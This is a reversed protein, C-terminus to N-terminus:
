RPWAASAARSMPMIPAPKKWRSGSMNAGARFARCTISNTACPSERVLLRVRLVASLSLDYKDDNRPAFRRLLGCPTMGPHRTPVLGRIHLQVDPFGQIGPEIRLRDDPRAERPGTPM